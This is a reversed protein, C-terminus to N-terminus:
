LGAYSFLDSGFFFQMPAEVYCKPMRDHEQLGNHRHEDHGVADHDAELRVRLVPPSKKCNQLALDM